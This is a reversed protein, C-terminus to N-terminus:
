WILLVTVLLSKPRWTNEKKKVECNSFMPATEENSQYVLSM